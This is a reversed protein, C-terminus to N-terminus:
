DLRRHLELGTCYPGFQQAQVRYVGNNLIVTPPIYYYYYYNKVEKFVKAVFQSQVKVKRIKLSLNKHNWNEEREIRTSGPLCIIDILRSPCNPRFNKLLPIQHIQEM